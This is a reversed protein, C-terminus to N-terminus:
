LFVRYARNPAGPPMPDLAVLGPSRGEGTIAAMALYRFLPALTGEVELREMQEVDFFDAGDVEVGDPRPTGGDSRLLFFVATDNDNGSVMSRVAMVGQVHAEIGAEELVEREATRDLTEDPELLGGPIVWKGKLPGYTPRVLLISGDRVVVARIGIIM